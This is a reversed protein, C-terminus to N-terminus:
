PVRNLQWDYDLFKIELNGGKLAQLQDAEMTMTDAYAAIFQELSEIGRWGSEFDDRYWKFIASLQLSEATLRNRSRDALFLRTATELQSELIEGRYAKNRLAPCGISACNVAFHIRPENYRKSGRILQHEIEDLSRIEGLFNVFERKWPSRFFSGLDKISDLEPYQSLILELTWANYANILFALQAPNSWSNFNARPVQAMNELIRTLKDHEALIGAYNVQSARGHNIEVVHRQLLRDWDAYNFPEASQVLSTTMLAVIFLVSNQRIM